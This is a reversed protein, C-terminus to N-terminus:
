FLFALIPCSIAGLFLVAGTISHFSSWVILATYRGLISFHLQGAQPLSRGTGIPDIQLISYESHTGHPHIYSGVLYLCDCAVPQQDDLRSRSPSWLPSVRVQWPVLTRDTPSSVSGKWPGVVGATTLSQKFARM